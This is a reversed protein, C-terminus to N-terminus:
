MNSIGSDIPGMYESSPMSHKTSMTKEKDWPKTKSLPHLTAAHTMPAHRKQLAALSDCHDELRPASPGTGRDEKWEYLEPYPTSAEEAKCDNARCSPTFVLQAFDGWQSAGLGLGNIGEYDANDCEGYCDMADYEGDYFTTIIDSQVVAKGYAWPTKPYHSRYLKAPGRQYLSELKHNLLATPNKLLKITSAPKMHLSGLREGLQLQCRILFHIIMRLVQSLRTRLNSSNHIPILLLGSM